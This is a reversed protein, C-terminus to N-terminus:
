CSGHHPRQMDVVLHHEARHRFRRSGRTAGHYANLTGAQEPSSQCQTAAPTPASRTSSTPVGTRGRSGFACRARATPLTAAWGSPARSSRAPTRRHLRGCSKGAAGAPRAHGDPRDRARAHSRHRGRAGRAPPDRRGRPPAARRAPAGLGAARGGVHSRGRRRARRACRGRHRALPRQRVSARRRAPARQRPAIVALDIAPARHRRARRARTRGPGRRSESGESALGAEIMGLHARRLGDETAPRGPHRRAQTRDRVHPGGACLM